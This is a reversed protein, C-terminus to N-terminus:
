QVVGSIYKSLASIVFSDIAKFDDPILVCESLSNIQSLYKRYTHPSTSTRLVPLLEPHMVCAQVQFPLSSFSFDLQCDSFRYLSPFVDRVSKFSSAEVTIEVRTMPYSLDSEASKDYLKLAGHSARAGLYETKAGNELFLRYSRRLDQRVLVVDDRSVPIDFAIDYRIIRIEVAPGKLLSVIRSVVYLPVKNPNFDFVAEPAVLKCSSDYCYRGILVACSWDDNSICATRCYAGIKFYDKYSWTVDASPHAAFIDYLDLLNSIEDISPVTCRKDYNYTTYMYSFKVRINDVSCRGISTDLCLGYPIDSFSMLVM